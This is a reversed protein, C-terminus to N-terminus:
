DRKQIEIVRQVLLIFFVSLVDIPILHPFKPFTTATDGETVPIAILSMTSDDIFKIVEKFYKNRIEDDASLADITNDITDQDDIIAGAAEISEVFHAYQRMNTAKGHENIYTNRGSDSSQMGFAKDVMTVIGNVWKQGSTLFQDVTPVRLTMSLNNSFEVVRGKGITFESKYRDLDAATVNANFRNAMHSIQWPTLSSNDTWCLKSVNVKETIVKNQQTSQDLVAKAYPFGNPWITCALGWIVLPLDLHSIRTRISPALDPHLTTDYIHNLAFEFLWGAFFVSNNAFALGWTKRGLSIKEENLRRHLELQAGESPTKFTVWFGSHWLPINVVNGLGMLARVRLVAREGVLKGDINDSLKLGCAQLSGKESSVNQRFDSGERTVTNGLVDNFNTALKSDNLREIWEGGAATDGLAVNPLNDIAKATNEATDSPLSLTVLDPKKELDAFVAYEQTVNVVTIPAAVVTDDSVTTPQDTTPQDPSQQQDVIDNSM